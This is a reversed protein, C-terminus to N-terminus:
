SRSRRRRRHQRYSAVRPSVQKFQEEFTYGKGAELHSGSNGSGSSGSGAGPSSSSMIQAAGAAAGVAAAAGANITLAGPSAPPLTPTWPAASGALLGSMAAATMQQQIAMAVATRAKDMGDRDLGGHKLRSLGLVADADGALQELKVRHALGNRADRQQASGDLEEDESDSEHMDEEEEEEQNSQAALADRM